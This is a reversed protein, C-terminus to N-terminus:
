IRGEAEEVAGNVTTHQGSLTKGDAYKIEYRGGFWYAIRVDPDKFVDMHSFDSDIQQSYITNVKEM